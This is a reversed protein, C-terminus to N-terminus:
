SKIYYKPGMLPFLDYYSIELKTGGAGGFFFTCFKGIYLSMFCGACLAEVVM